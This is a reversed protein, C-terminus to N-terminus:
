GFIFSFGPQFIAKWAAAHLGAYTVIASKILGKLGSRCLRVLLSSRLGTKLKM